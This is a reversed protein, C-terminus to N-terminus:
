YPWECFIEMVSLTGGGWYRSPAFTFVRRSREYVLTVPHEPINPDCAEFEIRQESEKLGFLVIGHNITIRPFRFLHVLTLGRQPLSQALKKAMKERHWPMMPFIMRWHSRLFYSQWPGGLEAKLLPEYARSFSRLGDYGPIVVRESDACPQRPSRSVVERILKRYIEPEVQPLEPEFRAHYFFQRTARVMVFCRHYYTPPPDAKCVTMAGTAPDFHYKWVLEHPFAFTDREFQFTCASHETAATM